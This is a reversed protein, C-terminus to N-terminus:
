QKPTLQLFRMMCPRRESMMLLRNDDTMDRLETLHHSNREVPQIPEITFWRDADRLFRAYSNLFDDVWNHIEIIVTCSKLRELFAPSLLQFEFGEIDILVLADALVGPPLTAISQENAEGFVQLQGPAQNRQWNAQITEQGKVSQEFCICHEVKKAMLMGIAYYGDAAGIDIFHSFQQQPLSEIYDLLEKEYLGLCQSGLDLKGWWTDRNLRLGAFPGYKVQGEAADFVELSIREQRERVTEKQWRERQEATALQARALMPAFYDEEAAILQEVNMKNGVNDPRCTKM